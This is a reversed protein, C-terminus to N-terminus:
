SERRWPKGTAEAGTLAALRESIGAPSLLHEAADLEVAARPMGYVVCTEESQAFTPAGARRLALLGGAGDRGMGTLLCGAARDGYDATVSEFLVDV